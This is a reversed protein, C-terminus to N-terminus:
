YSWDIRGDAVSFREYEMVTGPAQGTELLDALPRLFETLSSVFLGPYDGERFKLLPLSSSSTDASLIIGYPGDGKEAIPIWQPKWYEDDGIGQAIHLYNAHQEAIERCGLFRMDDPFIASDRHPLLAVGGGTLPKRVDKATSGNNVRLWAALAEPIEFGLRHTLTAIEEDTAGPRLVEASAPAHDRLWAAIRQWASVVEETEPM